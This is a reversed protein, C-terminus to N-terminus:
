DPGTGALAALSREHASGNTFLAPRVGGLATSSDLYSFHGGASQVIAAFAAYDWAAGKLQLAAEIEGQIVMPVAHPDPAVYDGVRHLEEAVQRWKPSVADIPPHSSWRLPQHPSRASVRLPRMVSHDSNLWAGEGVLGWWRRGLAPASTVGFTLTDDVQLAIQTGWARGGDIFVRTGDIPDVIWCTSSPGFQGGEEGLFGDQPRDRAVASRLSDELARELPITPTGDWEDFVRLRGGPFCGHEHRRGRRGVRPGAPPGLPCREDCWQRRDRPPACGPRPCGEDRPWVSGAATM